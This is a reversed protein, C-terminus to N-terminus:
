FEEEWIPIKHKSPSVSLDIASSSVTITPIVRLECETQMDFNRNVQSLLTSSIVVFLPNEWNYTLNYIISLYCSSPSMTKCLHLM